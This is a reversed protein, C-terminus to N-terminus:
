ASIVTAVASTVEGKDSAIPRHPAPLQATEATRDQAAVEPKEAQPRKGQFQGSRGLRVDGARRDHGTTARCPGDADRRHYRQGRCRCSPRRASLQPLAQDDDHRDGETKM